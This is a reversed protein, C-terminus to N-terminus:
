VAAEASNAHPKRGWFMEIGHWEMHQPDELMPGCMDMLEEGSYNSVEAFNLSAPFM